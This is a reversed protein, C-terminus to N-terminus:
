GGGGCGMRNGGGGWVGCGMVERGSGLVPGLSLSFFVDVLGTHWSLYVVFLSANTNTNFLLPKSLAQLATHLSVRPHQQLSLSLSM